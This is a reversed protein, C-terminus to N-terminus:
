LHVFHENASQILSDLQQIRVAFSQGLVQRGPEPVSQNRGPQLPTFEHCIVDLILCSVLPLSKLMAQEKDEEEKQRAMVAMIIKREEETLHSLDPLDPMNPTATPPRPGGQPGVSASM